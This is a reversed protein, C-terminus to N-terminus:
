ASFSRCIGPEGLGTLQLLSMTLKAGSDSNADLINQATNSFGEPTLLGTDVDIENAPISNPVIQPRVAKATLFITDEYNPLVVGHCPPPRWSM